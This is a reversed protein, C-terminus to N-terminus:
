NKQPLITFALMFRPNSDNVYMAHFNTFEYSQFNYIQVKEKNIRDHLYFNSMEDNEIKIEVEKINQSSYLHPQLELLYKQFLKISLPDFTKVAVQLALENNGWKEKGIGYDFLFENITIEFPSEVNNLFLKLTLTRM